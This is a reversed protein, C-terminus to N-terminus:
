LQPVQVCFAGSRATRLCIRFHTHLDPLVYCVLLRKPLYRAPPGAGLHSALPEARWGAEADRWHPPRPLQVLSGRGGRLEWRIPGQVLLEARGESVM